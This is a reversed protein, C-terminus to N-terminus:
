APDYSIEVRVVAHLTMGDPDELYQTDLPLAQCVRFGPLDLDPAGNVVAAKVASALRAAEATSRPTPRSWVHGQWEYNGGDIGEYPEDVIHGLGITIYPFPSARSAQPPLNYVQVRNSGFAAVVGPDGRIIPDLAASILAAADSM